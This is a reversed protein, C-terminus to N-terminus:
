RDENGMAFNETTETKLSEKIMTNNRQHSLWNGHNNYVSKNWSGLYGCTEELKNLEWSLQGKNSLGKRFLRDLIAGM